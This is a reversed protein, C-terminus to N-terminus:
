YDEEDPIQFPKWKRSSGLEINPVVFPGLKERLIELDRYITSPSVGWSKALQTVTPFGKSFKSREQFSLSILSLRRERQEKKYTKCSM